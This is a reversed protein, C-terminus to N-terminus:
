SKRRRRLNKELEQLSVHAEKLDKVAQAKDQQLKEYATNKLGAVFGQDNVTVTMTEPLTTTTKRKKSGGESPSVVM